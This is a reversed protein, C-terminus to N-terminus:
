FESNWSVDLPVEVSLLLILTVDGLVPLLKKSFLVKTIRKTKENREWISVFLICVWVGVCLCVPTYM